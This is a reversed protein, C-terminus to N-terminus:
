LYEVQKNKKLQGVVERVKEVESRKTIVLADDTEVVCLDDVGILAVLKKPVEVLSNHANVQIVNPMEKAQSYKISLFMELNGVDCWSFDVPLVWSNESKEIVAYDVAVSPVDEYLGDGSMYAQMAQFMDPAHQKFEEIFVSVPAAFMGINWLMNSQQIYTQALEKSPKERFQHVKFISDKGRMDSYEIYGYGIAAYTPQVGMLTICARERAFQIMRAVYNSFLNTDEDPIYADAPSFVAVADPNKEYIKLCSYLIAPGTNRAVPEAFIRDVEYQALHPLFTKASTVCVSDISDVSRLRALSQELLTKDSGLTLLQKPKSARSLPWLREGSGGALVVGYIMNEPSTKAIMAGVVSFALCFFIHKM